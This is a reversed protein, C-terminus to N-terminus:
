RGHANVSCPAMMAALTSLLGPGQNAAGSRITPRSAGHRKPTDRRETEEGRPPLRTKSVRGRRARTAFSQPSPYERGKDNTQQWGTMAARAVVRGAWVRCRSEGIPNEVLEYEWRRDGNDREWRQRLVLPEAPVIALLSTDRTANLLLRVRRQCSVQM